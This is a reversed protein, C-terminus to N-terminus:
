AALDIARLLSTSGAAWADRMQVAFADELRMVAEAGFLIDGALEPEARALEAVMRDRAIHQHVADAEVHVDYFRRAAPGLGLRELARSYRQMPVVSTM